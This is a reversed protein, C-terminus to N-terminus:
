KLKLGTLTNQIKAGADSTEVNRVKRARGDRQIFILRGKMGRSHKGRAWIPSHHAGAAADGKRAATEVQHDAVVAQFVDRIDFFRESFDAADELGVASQDDGNGVAIAKAVTDITKYEPAATVDVAEGPPLGHIRDLVVGADAQFAPVLKIRGEGIQIAERSDELVPRNAKRRAGPYEQFHRALGNVSRLPAEISRRAPAVPEEMGVGGDVAPGEIEGMGALGDRFLRCVQVDAKVASAAVGYGAHVPTGPKHPMAIGAVGHIREHSRKPM